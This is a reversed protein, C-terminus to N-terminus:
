LGLALQESAFLAKSKPLVKRLFARGFENILRSSEDARLALYSTVQLSTDALPRVVIIDSRIQRAAAESVFAVGFNEGILQVVEQPAVYHHLEVPSVSAQRASEFVRDYILPHAKRPFIMWGVDGFNGLELRGYGAAPHDSPMAVYLPNVALPVLTLLPTKPPESIIALDLESALVRHALDYAFMSEIRLRLNPYLPLHIAIIASVLSPDGYPSHGITVVPQVDEHTSRALRISKELLAMSDRLGVLLVQGADTLEVRKQDRRFVTYGVRSELEAIQKSLAPQTIRLREAAVTFNLEEALTLAALQLRMDPLHM